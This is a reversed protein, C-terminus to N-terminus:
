DVVFDLIVNGEESISLAYTYFGFELPTEGVFDMPQLVYNEGGVMINIYSYSYATEYELYDSYEDPDISEHIMEDSGVQVTDFTVNSENKIRINVGELDDDRDSCGIFVTAILFFLAFRKM